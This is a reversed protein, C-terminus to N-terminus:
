KKIQKEKHTLDCPATRTNPFFSAFLTKGDGELHEQRETEKHNISHNHGAIPRLIRMETAQKISILDISPGTKLSSIRSHHQTHRNYQKIILSGILLKWHFAKYTLRM